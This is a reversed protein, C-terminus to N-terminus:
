RTELLAQVIRESAHGDGYPNAAQTMSAYEGPNELLRLTEAVIRDPDTGVMRAVGAEVGEPRETADRLVLVPVGLGPAEEQIGGSDTLILASRKMLNVMELYDVPPILTIQPVNGLRSYVTQQVQPNPHVPYVLRLTGDAQAAIRVLAQCIRELPAGFSERRHSTVLILRTSDALDHLPSDLQPTWPRHVVDLL